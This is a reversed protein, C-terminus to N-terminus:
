TKMNLFNSLNKVNLFTRGKSLFKFDSSQVIVNYKLRSFQILHQFFGRNSHESPVQQPSVEKYEIGPRKGKCVNGNKKPYNKKVTLPLEPSNGQPAYCAYKNFRSVVGNPQQQSNMFKDFSPDNSTRIQEMLISYADSSRMTRVNEGIPEINPLPEVLVPRHRRFRGPAVWPPFLPAGETQSFSDTPEKNLIQYGQFPVSPEFPSYLSNNAPYQTQCTRQEITPAVRTNDENSPTRPSPRSVKRASLLPEVLVSSLPSHHTYDLFPSYPPFMDTQIAIDVVNDQRQVIFVLVPTSVEIASCHKNHNPFQTQVTRQEVPIRVIEQGSENREVIPFTSQMSVRRGDMWPSLPNNEFCNMRSSDKQQDEFPASSSPPELYQDYISHQPSWSNSQEDIAWSSSQFQDFSEHQRRWQNWEPNEKPTLDEPKSSFLVTPPKFTDVSESSDHYNMRVYSPKPKVLHENSSLPAKIFDDLSTNAFLSDNRPFPEMYTPEQTPFVTQEDALMEDFLREAVSMDGKQRSASTPRREDSKYGGSGKGSEKFDESTEDVVRIKEDSGRRTESFADIYLPAPPDSQFHNASSTKVINPKINFRELSNRIRIPSIRSFDSAPPVDQPVSVSQIPETSIVVKEMLTAKESVNNESINDFSKDTNVVLDSNDGQIGHSKILTDAIDPQLVSESSFVGDKSVRENGGEELEEVKVTPLEFEEPPKTEGVVALGQNYIEQDSMPFLTRLVPIKPAEEDPSEAQPKNKNNEEASKLSKEFAKSEKFRELVINFVNAQPDPIDKITSAFLKYMTETDDLTQINGAEILRDIQATLGRNEEAEEDSEAAKNVTQTIKSWASKPPSFPTNLKAASDFESEEMVDLSTRGRPHSASMRARGQMRRGYVYKLTKKANTQQVLSKPKIYLLTGEVPEEKMVPIDEFDVPEEKVAVLPQVEIQKLKKVRKRFIEVMLMQDPELQEQKIKVTEPQVVTEPATDPKNVIPTDAAPIILSSSTEAYTEDVPETKIAFPICPKKHKKTKRKRAEEEIHSTPHVIDDAATDTNEESRSVKFKNNLSVSSLNIESSTEDVPEQKISFPICPRKHKKKKRKRSEEESISSPEETNPINPTINESNQSPPHISPPLEAQCTLAGRQQFCLASPLQESDTSFIPEPHNRVCDSESCEAPESKILANHHECDMMERKVALLPNPNVSMDEYDMPEPKITPAMYPNRNVQNSFTPYNIEQEFCRPNSTLDHSTSTSQQSSCSSPPRSYSDLRAVRQSVSYPRSKGHSTGSQFQTMFEQLKEEQLTADPSTSRCKKRAAWRAARNTDPPYRKRLFEQINHSIRIKPVLVVLSQMKKRKRQYMPRHERTSSTSQERMHFEDLDECQEQRLSEFYRKARALLAPDKMDTEGYHPDFHPADFERTDNGEAFFSYLGYQYSTLDITKNLNRAAKSPNFRGVPRSSTQTEPLTTSTAPPHVRSCQEPSCPEPKIVVPPPADVIEEKINVGSFFSM